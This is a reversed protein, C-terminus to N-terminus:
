SLACVLQKVFDNQWFIKNSGKVVVWDNPKLQAVIQRMDLDQLNRATAMVLHPPLADALEKMLEGVLWVGALDRCENILARHYGAEADGLELMDGLIAYKGAGPEASFAKLTAAMSAPNANYSEDVITIGSAKIKNGRGSPLSVKALQEVATEPNGKVVLAALLTAAATLQRHRGCFPLELAVRGDPPLGRRLKPNRVVLVCSSGEDNSLLQLDADEHLGFSHKTGKFDSQSLLEYPLILTGSKPLGDAISLKEHAIGAVDDFGELHVPLANLVIAVDPSALKALMAIEGPRNMGLEFIGVKADKPLRSLSLPVGWFNNLSGVDAYGGTANTLFHKLTTKGSSGTLAIVQARTRKRGARALKWLGDLTNAVKYQTLPLDVFRSVLAARAGKELAMPLYDHGDGDSPSATHFDPGPDGTLAVFLDESELTRTDISIGQVACPEGRVELPELAAQM